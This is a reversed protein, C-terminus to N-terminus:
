SFLSARLAAELRATDRSWLLIAPLDSRHHHLRLGVSFLHREREIETVDGKRLVIQNTICSIVVSGEFTAVRVFPATWNLADFRAGAQESYVPTVGQEVSAARRAYWLARILFLAVAVAIVGGIASPLLDVRLGM